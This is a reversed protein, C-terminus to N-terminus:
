TESGSRSFSVSISFHFNTEYKPDPSKRDPPHLHRARSTPLLTRSVTPMIRNKWALVTFFHCIMSLINEGDMDPIDQSQIKHNEDPGSVWAGIAHFFKLNIYLVYFLM